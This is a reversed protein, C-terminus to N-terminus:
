DFLAVAIAVFVDPLEGGGRELEDRATIKQRLIDRVQQSVGGFVVVPCHSITSTTLPTRSCGTTLTQRRVSVPSAGRRCPAVVSFVPLIQALLLAAPPSADGTSHLWVRV